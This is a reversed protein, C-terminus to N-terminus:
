HKETTTQTNRVRILLTNFKKKQLQQDYESQTQVHLDYVNHNTKYEFNINKKTFCKYIFFYKIIM